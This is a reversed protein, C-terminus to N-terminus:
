SLLYLDVNPIQSFVVNNNIKTLVYNEKYNDNNVNTLNNIAQQKDQLDNLNNFIDLKTVIKDVNKMLYNYDSKTILSANGATSNNTHAYIIQETNNFNLIWDDNNTM